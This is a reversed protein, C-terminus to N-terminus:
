VRDVPRSKYYLLAILHNSLLLLSVRETDEGTASYCSVNSAGTLNVPLKNMRIRIRVKLTSTADLPLMRPIDSPSTANM